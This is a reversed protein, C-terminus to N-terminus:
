RYKTYLQVNLEEKQEKTNEHLKKDEIEGIEENTYIWIYINLIM